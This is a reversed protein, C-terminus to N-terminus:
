APVGQSPPAMTASLDPGPMFPPPQPILRGELKEWDDWDSQFAWPFKARQEIWLEVPKRRYLLLRDRPGPRELHLGRVAAEFAHLFADGSAKTLEKLNRDVQDPFQDALLSWYYGINPPTFLKAQEALVNPTQEVNQPRLHVVAPNAQQTPVAQRTVPQNM